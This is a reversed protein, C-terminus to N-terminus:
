AAVRLGGDGFGHPQHWEEALLVQRQEAPGLAHGRRDDRLRALQQHLAAAAVVLSPPIVPPIVSPRTVGLVPRSGRRTSRRPSASTRGLAASASAPSRRWAPRDPVSRSIAILRSSRAVWSRVSIAAAHSPVATAGTSPTRAATCTSLSVSTTSRPNRTTPAAIM